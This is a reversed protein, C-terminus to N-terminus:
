KGDFFAKLKELAKARHSLKNKQDEDLEAFTQDLGVPFFLPDYGFGNKGRPELGIRGECAGEFTNVEFEDAYCVPSAATAKSEPVAALAIVCQFRARRQDFPLGELLRLLKANNDADPTNGSQASDLAAFRASHVGPAGKLADVELGSDDALVFLPSARPTPPFHVYLWRAVELAKKTANGAFTDADEVVSPIAPFDNLTLLQSGSGLLTRIEGLRSVLPHVLGGQVVVILAGVATFVAAASAIDFGLRKQGFIAFTAEFGSFAVMASFAVAILAAAGRAGMLAAIPGPQAAAARPDPPRTEPLRRWAVIANAGALGAAVFFPLRPGGLAALAGIAPGAVFGLGFAAGLLGFLRSREAPRSLDAAAAQAVSISAGSAGDVIRGAFLLVMGGALGTILSGAATGVLSVLLVPKRGIRDSVRGWIPSAVFTAASYAAVLLTAEFSTTHYRRAYIPLIPLVIGFGILDVAVAAWITGFGPPLSVRIRGRKMLSEPSRGAAPVRATPRGRLEGAFQPGTQGTKSM